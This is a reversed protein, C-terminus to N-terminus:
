RRSQVDWLLALRAEVLMAPDLGATEAHAAAKDLITSLQGLMHVMVAVSAEHLSLPL